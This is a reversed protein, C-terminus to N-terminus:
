NACLSLKNTFTHGNREMSITANCDGMIEEAMSLDTSPDGLTRGNISLIVDGPRGGIAAFMMSGGDMIKYGRGGNSVLGLDRLASEPSRNQMDEKLAQAVETANNSTRILQEVRQNYGGGSAKSSAQQNNGYYSTSSASSSSRSRSASSRRSSSKRAGASEPFYLAEIAGNRNILVSDERVEALKVRGPLAEGVRYLRSPNSRESIIATSDEEKEAVFVGHLTLQLNTEPADEPLEQKVPEAVAATQTGFLNWSAIAGTDIGTNQQPKQTTAAVEGVGYLQPAAGSSASGLLLFVIKVVFYCCAVLFGAVVVNTARQVWKATGTLAKEATM